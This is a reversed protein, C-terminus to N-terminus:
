VRGIRKLKNASDSIRTQGLTIIEYIRMTKTYMRSYRINNVTIATRISNM